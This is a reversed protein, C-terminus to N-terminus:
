YKEYAKRSYHYNCYQCNKAAEPKPLMLLRVADEFLKKAGDADTQVKVLQTNFLIGNRGVRNPYYFLLYGYNM